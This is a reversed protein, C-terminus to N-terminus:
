SNFALSYVSVSGPVTSPVPAGLAARGADDALGASAQEEPPLPLHAGPM